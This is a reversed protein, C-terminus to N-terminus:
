AVERGSDVIVRAKRPGFRKACERYYLQVTRRECGIFKAVFLARMNAFYCARFLHCRAAVLYKGRPGRRGDANIEARSVGWERMADAILQLLRKGDQCYPTEQNPQKAPQMRRVALAQEWPQQSM